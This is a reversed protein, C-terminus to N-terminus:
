ARTARRGGPSHRRTRLREPRAQLPFSSRTGRSCGYASLVDKRGVIHVATRPAGGSRLFTTLEWRVAFAFALVDVQKGSKVYLAGPPKRCSGPRAASDAAPGHVSSSM